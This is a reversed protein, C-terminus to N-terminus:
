LGLLRAFMWVFGWLAASVLGILAMATPWALRHHREGSGRIAGAAEEISLSRLVSM